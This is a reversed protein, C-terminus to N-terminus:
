EFKLHRLPVSDLVDCKLVFYDQEGRNQFWNWGYTEHYTLKVKYGHEAANQLDTIVNSNDRDNDLSFNWLSGSNMGTQTLNLEGEWSKFIIGKESFKTVFGIREGNSYNESCASLLLAIMAIFLIRKM